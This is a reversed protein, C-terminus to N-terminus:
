DYRIRPDAWALAVDALLNGAILMLSYMMILTGGLYVDENLLSELLLPGITPLGLVVSVIADGSLIVPLSMGAISILPNIAIRVAHKTVVVREKLGKARATQIFPQDLVDLLNGRMIRMLGAASNLAIVFAPIWLHKLLDLLKGLTWPAGEYALSFLGFLPVGFVEFVFVMLALAMLFAPLSMGLFSLLTLLHDSWRHQNMASYIGLPIAILYTLALCSVALLVTLGARDWVLTRVEEDYAFSEGFDGRIFGSIWLVYRRWLPQDLGYRERLEAARTLSSSDGYQRELQAIKQDLYDGPPLQILVFSIISVAALTPIAMLVRRLVYATM